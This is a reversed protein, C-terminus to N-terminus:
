PTPSATANTEVLVEILQTNRSTPTKMEAKEHRLLAMFADANEEPVTALISVQGLGNTTRVGVGGAALAADIVEAARRDREGPKVTLVVQENALSPAALAQDASKELAATLGDISPAAKQQHCGAVALAACILPITKHFFRM